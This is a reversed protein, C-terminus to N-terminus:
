TRTVTNGYEKGFNAKKKDRRTIPDKSVNLYGSVLM